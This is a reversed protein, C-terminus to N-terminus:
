NNSADVFTRLTVRLVSTSSVLRKIDLHNDCIISTSVSLIGERFVIIYMNLPELYTPSLNDQEFSRFSIFYYNRFLEIKERTEEM